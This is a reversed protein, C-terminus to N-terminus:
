RGPVCKYGVLELQSVVLPLPCRCHCLSFHLNPSVWTTGTGTQTIKNRTSVNPLLLLFTDPKHSTPSPTLDVLGHPPTDPPLCFICLLFPVLSFTLLGVEKAVEEGEWTLMYNMVVYKQSIVEWAINPARAFSQNHDVGICGLILSTWAINYISLPAGLLAKRSLANLRTTYVTRSDCSGGIETWKM